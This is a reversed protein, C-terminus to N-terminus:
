IDNVHRLMLASGSKTFKKQEGRYITNNDLVKSMLRANKM